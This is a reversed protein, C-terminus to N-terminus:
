NNVLSIEKGELCVVLCHEGLKNAILYPRIMLNWGISKLGSYNIIKGFRVMSSGELRGNREEGQRKVAQWNDSCEQSDRV